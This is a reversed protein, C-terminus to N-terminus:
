ADHLSTTGTVLNKWYVFYALLDPDYVFEPYLGAFWVTHLLHAAGLGWPWWDRAAPTEDAMAQISCPM